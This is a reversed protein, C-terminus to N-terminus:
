KVSGVTNGNTDRLPKELAGKQINKIAQKLVFEVEGDFDDEFAANAVDIKITFSKKAKKAEALEEAEGAEDEVQEDIQTKDELNEVQGEQLFDAFSMKTIEM